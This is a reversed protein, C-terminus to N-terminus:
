PNVEVIFAAGRGGRIIAGSDHRAQFTFNLKRRRRDWDLVLSDLTKVGPTDLIIRQVIQRISDIDPNKVLFAEFYPVGQRLDLFWEGRHFSLRAKVKQACEAADTILSLRGGTIDWDGNSDLAITTM